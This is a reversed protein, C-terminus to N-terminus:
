KTKALRIEEMLLIEIKSTQFDVDTQLGEFQSMFVWSVFMIGLAFHIRAFFVEAFQLAKEKQIDSFSHWVFSFPPELFLPVM